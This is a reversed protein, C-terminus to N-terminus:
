LGALYDFIEKDTNTLRLKQRLRFRGMNIARISQGTIDSIEKTTMDLKLFACLRRENLTLDPHEQNLREYFGSHIQQFRYEFEEWAKTRVQAQTSRREPASANTESQLDGVLVEILHYKKLEYGIRELESDKHSLEAELRQRELEVQRSELEQQLRRLNMRRYRRRYYIMGVVSALGLLAFALVAVVLRNRGISEREALEREKQEFEQKLEKRTMEERVRNSQAQREYDAVMDMYRIASDSPGARRYIRSLGEAFAKGMVLNGVMRATSLGENAQQAARTLDGLKEFAEMRAEQLLIMRAPDGAGPLQAAAQDLLRLADSTKDERISVKGKTVLLKFLTGSPDPGTGMLAIASDLSQHARSLDGIGLFSVGMNLHISVQDALPWEKGAKRYAAVLKPKLEEMGRICKQYAALASHILVINLQNNIAEIENGSQLAQDAAQDFHLIALDFLGTYFEVSAISKYARMQLSHDGDKKAAFVAEQAYSLAKKYDGAMSHQSLAMYLEAKRDEKKAAGLERLLSDAYRGQAMLGGHSVLWILIPIFIIRLFVLIRNMVPM